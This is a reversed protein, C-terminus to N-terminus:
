QMWFEDGWLEKAELEEQEEEQFDRAPATAQGGLPEPAGRTAEQRNEEEKNKLMFYLPMLEGLYHKKIPHKGQRLAPLRILQTSKVASCKLKLNRGAGGEAYSGCRNCFIMSDGIGVVEHGLNAMRQLQQLRQGQIACCGKKDLGSRTAAGQCCNTCIYMQKGTAFTLNHRQKPTRRGKKTGQGLVVAGEKSWETFTKFSALCGAVWRLLAKRNSLLKDRARAQWDLPAGQLAAKKALLDAQMNGWFDMKTKLDWNECMRQHALVKTAVHQHQVQKWVGAWPRQSERAWPLFNASRIMSSCDGVLMCPGDSTSDVLLVAMHEGAAATQPFGGPVMALAARLVQGEASVQVAASGATAWRHDSPRQASGDIYIYNGRDWGEFEERAVEVLDESFFRYSPDEELELGKQELWWLRSAEFDSRGRAVMQAVLGEPLVERKAASHRCEWLRHFLDDEQQCGYLCSPSPIVGRSALKAGTLLGGTVAARLCQKQRATLKNAAAKSSLVAKAEFFSLAKDWDEGSEAHKMEPHNTMMREQFRSMEAARHAKSYLQWMMKPSGMRMDMVSGKSEITFPTKLVWDAMQCSRFVELMPGKLKSEWNSRGWDFAAWMEAVTLVDDAPSISHRLWVERSYRELPAFDLKLLPDQHPPLLAWQTAQPAGRVWQGLAQLGDVRLKAKWHQPFGWLDAGYTTCPMVGAFFVKAGEQKKTKLRKAKLLRRRGEKWRKAFMPGWRSTKGVTHDFGLRRVVPVAEGQYGGMARQLLAKTVSSTSLLNAKSPAFKLDLGREVRAIVDACAGQLMSALKAESAHSAQISVDDVHLSITIGAHGQLVQRIDETMLMALEFVAFSSGPGLGRAPQVAPTSIKESVLFRTFLYSDLSLKLIELPYGCALAALALKHHSVRDFAMSVDMLVEATHEVTRSMTRMISRWVGDGVRRGALNNHFSDHMCRAQWEKVKPQACKSWLRFASRYQLIPRFGGTPKGLILCLLSRQFSAWTGRAEYKSFLWALAEVCIDPLYAFQRPHWGCVATTSKKFSLAVKKIYQVEFVQEQRSPWKIDLLLGSDDASWAGEWKQHQAMLLAVPCSTQGGEPRNVLQVQQHVDKKGKVWAHAKKAGGMMAEDVWAHWSSNQEAWEQQVLIDNAKKLAAITEALAMEGLDTSLSSKTQIGLVLMGFLSKLAPQKMAHFAFSKKARKCRIAKVANEFSKQNGKKIAAAVQQLRRTLWIGAMSPVARASMKTCLAKHLHSQCFEFEMGAKGERGFLAAAEGNALDEWSRTCRDVEEQSSEKSLMKVKQLLEIWEGKAQPMPGIVPSTSGPKVQKFLTVQKSLLGQILDVQQPIHTALGMDGDKIQGLAQCVKNDGFFFDICSGTGSSWCTPKSPVVAVVQKLKKQIDWFFDHVEMNHDGGVLYPKGHQLVAKCLLGYLQQNAQGWGVGTWGYVSYLVVTGFAATRFAVEVLRGGAWAKPEWAVELHRQWLIAIGASTGGKETVKAEGFHVAYGRAWCWDRAAKIRDEGVLKTEQLLLVQPRCGVEM